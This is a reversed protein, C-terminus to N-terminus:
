QQAVIMGGSSARRSPPAVVSCPLPANQSTVSSGSPDTQSRAVGGDVLIVLLNRSDDDGVPDGAQDADVGVGPM